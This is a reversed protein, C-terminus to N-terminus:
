SFTRPAWSRPSRAPAWPLRNPSALKDAGLAKVYDGHGWPGNFIMGVKGDKFAADLKSGDSDAIVNPTGKAEAIM